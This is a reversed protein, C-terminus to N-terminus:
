FNLKSVIQNQGSRNMTLKSDSDPGNDSDDNLDSGMHVPGSRCNLETPVRVPLTSKNGM